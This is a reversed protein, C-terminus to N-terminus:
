HLNICLPHSSLLCVKTANADPDSALEKLTRASFRSKEPKSMKAGELITDLFFIKNLTQQKSRQKGSLTPRTVDSGSLSNISFATTALRSSEALNTSTTSQFEMDLGNSVLQM